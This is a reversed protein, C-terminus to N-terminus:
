NARGMCYDYIYEEAALVAAARGRDTREVPMSYVLRLINTAEGAVLNATRQRQAQSGSGNSLANGILSGMRNAASQQSVGSQRMLAAERGITSMLSCIDRDYIRSIMAAEAPPAATAALACVLPLALLRRPM